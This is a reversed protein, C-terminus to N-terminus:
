EKDDDEEGDWDSHTFKSVDKGDREAANLSKRKDFAIQQTLFKFVVKRAKKLIPFKYGFPPTYVIAPPVDQRGFTLVTNMITSGPFGMFDAGATMCMLSALFFVPGWFLHVWPAIKTRILKKDDPKGLCFLPTILITLPVFIFGLTAGHFAELGVWYSVKGMISAQFFKVAYMVGLVFVLFGLVLVVEHPLQSIWGAIVLNLPPGANTPAATAATTAATTPM